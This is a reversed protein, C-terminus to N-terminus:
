SSTNSELNHRYKWNTWTTKYLDDNEKCYLYFLKLFDLRELFHQTYLDKSENMFKHENLKFRRLNITTLDVDSIISQREMIDEFSVKKANELMDCLTLFTTTRGKGGKCHIHTWSGQPKNIFFNVFVDMDDDNPKAHDTVPIRLYAVSLKAALNRETSIEKVTVNSFLYGDFLIRDPDNKFGKNTYIKVVKDKQAQKLLEKEEDEIERDTENLNPWTGDKYAFSVPLENIFGHSEERLDVLLISKQDILKIIEKLGEESFQSSGSVKLDDLGLRTPLKENSQDTVPYPSNLKRFKKFPKDTDLLIIIQKELPNQFSSILPLDSAPLHIQLFAQILFTLFLTSKIM